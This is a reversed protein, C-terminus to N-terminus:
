VAKLVGVALLAGGVLVMPGGVAQLYFGPSKEAFTDGAATRWNVTGGVLTAVTGAVVLWASLRELGQGLTSFSAALSLGLLAAGAMLAELHTTVLHRPATPSSMRAKAMPLGLIFGYLLIL